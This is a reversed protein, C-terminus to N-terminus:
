VGVEDDDDNDSKRRGYRPKPHWIRYVAHIGVIAGLVAGLMTAYRTVVDVVDISHLLVALGSIGAGYGLETKPSLDHPSM